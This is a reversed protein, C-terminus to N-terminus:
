KMLMKFVKDAKVKTYKSSPSTPTIKESSAKLSSLSLSLSASKGSATFSMTMDQPFQRGQFQTFDGYTFAFAYKSDSPNNISTKTLHHSAKESVFRYHLMSDDYDMVVTSSPQSFTYLSADVNGKKGPIFLENWFLSQLTNFDVNARKLFSVESYPVDMYQKNMRDIIVVNTPTFEMRGVEMLGLIPDILTLQIINDKNMKLTGSTSFDKGDFAVTVKIKASMGKVSQYDATVAEVYKRASFETETPLAANDKVGKKSSSCSVFMVAALMVAITFLHKTRM